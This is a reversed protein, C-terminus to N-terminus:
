WGCADPSCPVAGVSLDEHEETLPTNTHLSRGIGANTSTAAPLSPTDLSINTGQSAGHPHSLCESVVTTELIKTRFQYQAQLSLTSLVLSIGGRCLVLITYVNSQLFTSRSIKTGGPLMTFNHVGCFYISFNPPKWGLPDRLNALNGQARCSSM